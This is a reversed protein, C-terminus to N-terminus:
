VSAAQLSMESGSATFIDRVFKETADDAIIKTMLDDTLEIEEVRLSYSTEDLSPALLDHFRKTEPKIDPRRSLADAIGNKAGPM